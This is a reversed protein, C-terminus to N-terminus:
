KKDYIATDLEFNQVTRAPWPPYFKMKVWVIESREFLIICREPVRKKRGPKNRRPM